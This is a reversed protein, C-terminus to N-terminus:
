IFNHNTTKSIIDIPTGALAIAAARPHLEKVITGLADGILAESAIHPSNPSKLSNILKVM